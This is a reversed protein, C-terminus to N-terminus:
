STTMAKIGATEGGDIPIAVGNVYSAGPSLLWAVVSAIESPEALRGQPIRATTAKLLEPDSTVRAMLRTNVQGPCVANVRLGGLELALSRTLAIIAGTTASYGALGEEGVLGAVSALNVIAGSGARLAPLAARTFRYVSDLNVSQLSRWTEEDLDDITVRATRGANNVLGALAGGGLDAAANVATSVATSDTVDCAIFTSTALEAAVAAGAEEDRDVLVIHHGLAHIAHACARGIGNGAGTVIVVTPKDM